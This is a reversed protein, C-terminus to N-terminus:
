IEPSQQKGANIQEEWRQLLAPFEREFFVFTDRMHDLRARSEPGEDALLELGVEALERMLAIEDLMRKMVVLWASPRVRYYDRRKGPLTFREVLGNQILMRSTASISGKSAQLTDAIENMSQHTPNCILLWGLMRGAMRTIGIREFFLAIEEIFHQKEEVHNGV